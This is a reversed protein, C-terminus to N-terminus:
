FAIEEPLDVDLDLIDGQALAVWWATRMTEWQRDRLQTLIPRIPEPTEALDKESNQWWRILDQTTTAIAKNHSIIQKGLCEATYQRSATDNVSKMIQVFLEETLSSSKLVDKVKAIQEKLKSENMDSGRSSNDLQEIRELETLVFRVVDNM